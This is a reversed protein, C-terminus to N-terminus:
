LWPQVEKLSWEYFARRGVENCSEESTRQVIFDEYTFRQGLLLILGGLDVIDDRYEKLWSSSWTNKFPIYELIRSNAVYSQGNNLADVLHTNPRFIANLASTIGAGQVPFAFNQLFSRNSEGAIGTAVWTPQSLPYLYHHQLRYSRSTDVISCYLM